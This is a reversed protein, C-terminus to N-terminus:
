RGNKVAEKIWTEIRNKDANCQDLAKPYAVYAWDLLSGNTMQSIPPHPTKATWSLDPTLYVTETKVIQRMLGCGTLSLCLFLLSLGIVFHKISKKALRLSQQFHLM